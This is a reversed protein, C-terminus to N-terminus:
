ALLRHDQRATCARAEFRRRAINQFVATDARQNSTGNAGVIGEELKTSPQQTVM